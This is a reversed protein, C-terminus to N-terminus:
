IDRFADDIEKNHKGAGCNCPAPMGTLDESTCGSSHEKKQLVSKLREKIAGMKMYFKKEEETAM